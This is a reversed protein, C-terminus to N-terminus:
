EMSKRHRAESLDNWDVIVHKVDQHAIQDPVILLRGCKHNVQVKVALGCSVFPAVDAATHARDSVYCSKGFAGDM